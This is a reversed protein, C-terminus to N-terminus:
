RLSIAQLCVKWSLAMKMILYVEHVNGSLSMVKLWFLLKEYMVFKVVETLKDDSPTRILHDAWFWSSYLTLSPIASRVSAQIDVNKIISSDLNCM